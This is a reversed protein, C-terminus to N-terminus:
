PTGGTYNLVSYSNSSNPSKGIFADHAAQAKAELDIANQRRTAEATQQAMLLARIQMLQASQNSAFQNAAQLAQMQGTSSQASQQLVMLQNADSRLQQEQSDITRLLNDNASKQTDSGSYRGSNLQALQAQSCGGTGICGNQYQSASSYQSLYAELSGAKAAYQDITNQTALLKSITTNTQDWTFSNPNATNQLQNQLQQLQQQTQIVSQNASITTQLVNAADLTAIAQARAASAMCWVALLAILFRFQPM